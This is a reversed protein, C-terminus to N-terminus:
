ASGGGSGRDILYLVVVAGAGLAVCIGVVVGLLFEIM